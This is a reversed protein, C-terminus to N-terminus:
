SRRIALSARDPPPPSGDTLSSVMAGSEGMSPVMGGAAALEEVASSVVRRTGECTVVLHEVVEPAGPRGTRQVCLACPPAPYRLIDFAGLIRAQVWAMGPVGEM